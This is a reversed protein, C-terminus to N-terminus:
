EMKTEKGEHRIESHIDKRALFGGDKDFFTLVERMPSDNDLGTGELHRTMWVKELKIINTLDGYGNHKKNEKM